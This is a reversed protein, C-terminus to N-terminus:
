SCKSAARRLRIAESIRHSAESLKSLRERLSDAELVSEGSENM